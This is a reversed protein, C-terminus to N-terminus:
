LSDLIDKRFRLTDDAPLTTDITLFSYPESSCKRNIKMYGEYDIDASHKTAVNQLETKNHIKMILYNTSNLRIEKPVFFNLNHSLYM